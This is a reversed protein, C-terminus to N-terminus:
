RPLFVLRRVLRASGNELVAFYVGAPMRAGNANRGDWVVGRSGPAQTGDVLTRIERGLVDYIALKVGNGNATFFLQTTQRSPNPMPPSLTFTGPGAPKDGAIGTTAILQDLINKMEAEYTSLRATYPTSQPTVFAVKGQADVIAFSSRDVGWQNGIAGGKMGLPYTINRGPGTAYRGVASEATNWVDVGIAQM